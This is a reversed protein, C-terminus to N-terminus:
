ASEEATVSDPRGMIKAKRRQDQQKRELSEEGSKSMPRPHGSVKSIYDYDLEYGLEDYTPSGRPGKQLCISSPMTPEKPPREPTKRTKRRKPSPPCLDKTEVPAEPELGIRGSAKEAEASKGMNYAAKEIDVATITEGAEKSLRERLTTTKEFISAYEKATYNIKRNENGNDEIGKSKRKKTDGKIDTQWHLWRFLDDSFFPITDPDYCSLLLSATAPGVGKLKSLTSVAKSPDPNNSMLSFASATTKRVEEVSNSAVLKALSPRYTGFKLKWEVLSQVETKELFAEGDKKRQAVVEPVDNYRLEQLGEFKEPLKKKELDYCTRYTKFDEYSITPPALKTHM